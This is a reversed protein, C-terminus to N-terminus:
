GEDIWVQKIWHALSEWKEDTPGNHSWYHVVGDSDICFYDGNDECIPIWSKSINQERLFFLAKGLDLYSDENDTITLLEYVGYCVMSAKSLLLRHDKHFKVGYKREFGDISADEPCPQGSYREDALAIIEYIADEITYVKM